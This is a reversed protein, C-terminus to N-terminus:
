RWGLVMDEDDSDIDIDRWGLHIDEDDYYIEGLAHDKDLADCVEVLYNFTTANDVKVASLLLELISGHESEPIAIKEDELASMRADKIEQAVRIENDAQDQLLRDRESIADQLNDARVSVAEEQPVEDLEGNVEKTEHRETEHAKELNETSM